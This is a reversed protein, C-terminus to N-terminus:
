YQLIRSPIGMAEEGGRGREKRAMRGGKVVMSNKCQVAAEERGGEAKKSKGGRAVVWMRIERGGETSCYTVRQEAM